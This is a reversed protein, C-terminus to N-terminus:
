EKGEGQPLTSFRSANKPFPSVRRYYPHADKRLALPTLGKGFDAFHPNRGERL